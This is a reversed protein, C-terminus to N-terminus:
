RSEFPSESPAEIATPGDYTWGRPTRQRDEELGLYTMARREMAPWRFREAVWGSAWGGVIAALAFAPFLMATRWQVGSRMPRSGCGYIVCRRAVSWCDPHYWVRCRGCRILAPDAPAVEGSCFACVIM